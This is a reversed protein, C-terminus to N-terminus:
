FDPSLLSLSCCFVLRRIAAETSGDTTLERSSRAPSLHQNPWLWGFTGGTLLGYVLGDIMSKITSRWSKKYWISQQCLALSYGIFATAGAFRFVALYRADPQLARGTIYAAFIGVVICYIFWQLLQGGMAPKGGPMITIVAVPGREYKEFFAPSKLADTSSAYPMMYDGPKVGAKRMSEMVDSENQSQTYDNKHFRLVMHMLSSALFVILAAALIPLWLALIPVM